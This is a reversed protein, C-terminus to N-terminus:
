RAAVSPMTASTDSLANSDNATAAAMGVTARSNFPRGSYANANPPVSAVLTIPIVAAPRQLSRAPGPM